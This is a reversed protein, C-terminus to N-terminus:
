RDDDRDRRSRRSTRRRDDADGRDSRRARRRRTRDRDARRDYRRRDADYDNDGYYGGYGYRRYYSRYYPSYGGGYAYRPGYYPSYANGFHFGVSFHSAGFGLRGRLFPDGYFPDHFYGHSRRYPYRSGAYLLRRRGDRYGEEYGEEFGEEFGYTFDDDGGSRYYGFDRYYRDYHHDDYRDEYEDDYRYRSRREGRDDRGRREREHREQEYRDRERRDDYDPLRDNRTALQTYCGSLLLASLALVAASFLSRPRLARPIMASSAAFACLPSRFANPSVSVAVLARKKRVADHVLRKPAVASKHFDERWAATTKKSPRRFFRYTPM